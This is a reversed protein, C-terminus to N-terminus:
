RLGAEPAGGSQHAYNRLMQLSRPGECFILDLISLGPL